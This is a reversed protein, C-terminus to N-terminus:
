PKESCTLQLTGTASDSGHRFVSDRPQELFEFTDGRLGWGKKEDINGSLRYIITDIDPSVRMGYLDMDDATNVIVTLESPPIIGTLGKLFKAAGSGGGLATIM